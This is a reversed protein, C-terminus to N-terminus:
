MYGNGDAYTEKEKQTSEKSVFFLGSNRTEQCEVRRTGPGEVGGRRSQRKGEPQHISGFLVGSFGLGNRFVIWIIFCYGSCASCGGRSRVFETTSFPFFGSCRAWFEPSLASSTSRLGNSSSIFVCPFFPTSDLSIFLYYGLQVTAVM